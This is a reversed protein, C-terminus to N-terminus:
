VRSCRRHVASQIRGDACQRQRRRRVQRYGEYVGFFFLKDHLIPGGVSGGFQNYVLAGKTTAFQPRAAFDEVQNNLFLSGHYTNTGSKTIINIGGSMTNALEASPIGKTVSLESIAEMSVTKIPNFNGSMGLSPAEPDGEADPWGGHSRFGAGPLGNMSVGSGQSAIGTGLGVMNTWDRRSLPLERVQAEIKGERQEASVTNVLPASASIEVVESVNGLALRYEAGVRQGAGLEIGTQKQAKFGSAEISVTYVGVPLFAVTFDGSADSVATSTSNTGENLMTIKAQPVGAGSPDLVRGYITATTVQAAMPVALLAAIALSQKWNM